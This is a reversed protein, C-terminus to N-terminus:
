HMPENPIQEIEDEGGLAAEIAFLVTEKMMECARRETGIIRVKILCEFPEDREQSPATALEVEVTISV